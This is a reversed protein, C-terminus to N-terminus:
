NNKFFVSQNVLIYILIYFPIVGPCLFNGLNQLIYKFNWTFFIGMKFCFPLFMFYMYQIRSNYGVVFIHKYGICGKIINKYTNEENM